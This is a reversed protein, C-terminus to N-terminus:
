YDIQAAQLQRAIEEIDIGFPATPSYANASGPRNIRIQDRSLRPEPATKAVARETGQVPIPASLDAFGAITDMGASMLLRRLEPEARLTVGITIVLLLSTIKAWFFARRSRDRRSAIIEEQYTDTFSM